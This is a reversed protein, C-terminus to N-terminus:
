SRPKWLKMLNVLGNYAAYFLRKSVGVFTTFDERMESRLESFSGSIVDQFGSEYQKRQERVSKLQHELQQLEEQREDLAKRDAEIRTRIPENQRRLMVWQAIARQLETDLKKSSPLDLLKQQLESVTLEAYQREYDKRKRDWDADDGCIASIRKGHKQEQDLAASHQQQQNRISVNIKEVEQRLGKIKSLMADEQNTLEQLQALSTHLYRYVWFELAVTAGLVFLLGFLIAEMLDSRIKLISAFMITLLIATIASIGLVLNTRRSFGYRLLQRFLHKGFYYIGLIGVIFPVIQLAWQILAIIVGLFILVVVLGFIVQELTVEQWERKPPEM